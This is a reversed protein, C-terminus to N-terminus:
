LKTRGEDTTRRGLELGERGVSVVRAAGRLATAASSVAGQVAGEGGDGGDRNSSSPTQQQSQQLRASTLWGVQRAVGSVQAGLYAMDEKLRINENLILMSHRGDLEQLATAIRAMEDRLSEHLSLLHNVPSAYPDSSAPFPFDPPLGLRSRTEENSSSFYASPNEDFDQPIDFTSSSPNRGNNDNNNAPELLPIRTEDAADVDSDGDSRPYLLNELSSFGGELIQVKRTLLKQAEEQEDQRKEQAQLFPALTALTCTKTHSEM